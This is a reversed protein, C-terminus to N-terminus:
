NKEKGGEKKEKPGMNNLMKNLEDVSRRIRMARMDLRKHEYCFQSLGKWIKNNRKMFGGEM